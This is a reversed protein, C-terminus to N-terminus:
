SSRSPPSKHVSSPHPYTEAQHVVQATSQGPISRSNEAIVGSSSCPPLRPTSLLQLQATEHASAPSLRIQTEPIPCAASPAPWRIPASSHAPSRDWHPHAPKPHSRSRLSRPALP